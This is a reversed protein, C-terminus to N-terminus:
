ELGFIRPMGDRTKVKLVSQRAETLNSNLIPNTSVTFM